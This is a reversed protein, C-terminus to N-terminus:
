KRFRQSLSGTQNSLLKFGYHYAFIGTFPLELWVTVIRSLLAASAAIPVPVTFLALVTTIAAEYVGIMGPIAVPTMQIMKGFAMTIMVVWLSVQAGMSILVIWLITVSCGWDGISAAFSLVMQRRSSIIKRFGSNYEDLFQDAKGEVKAERQVLRVVPQVLKLM